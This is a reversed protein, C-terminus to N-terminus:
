LDDVVSPGPAATEGNEILRQAVLGSIPAMVTAYGVSVSAQGRAAQAADFDAKAKDLAASSIFNQRHLNKLREYNAKANIYQATAGAAMESAERADIRLLLDGKRIPQGVDVHMETVRGSVQSTLTTQTTAEVTAEVPLTLDVPHPKVVVTPLEAAFGASGRSYRLM